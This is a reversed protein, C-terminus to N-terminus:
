LSQHHKKRFISFPEPSLHSWHIHQDPVHVWFYCGVDLTTPFSKLSVVFFLNSWLKHFLELHVIGVMFYSFRCTDHASNYKKHTSAYLSNRIGPSLFNQSHGHVRWPISGFTTLSLFNHQKFNKCLIQYKNPKYGNWLAFTIWFYPVTRPQFFKRGTRSLRNTRFPCKREEM